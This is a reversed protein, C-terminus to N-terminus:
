PCQASDNLGLGKVRYIENRRRDFRKRTFGISPGNTCSVPATNEVIM